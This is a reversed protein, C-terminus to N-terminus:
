DNKHTFRYEKYLEGLAAFILIVVTTIIIGASIALLEEIM